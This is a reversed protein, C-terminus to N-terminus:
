IASSPSSQSSAAIPTQLPCPRTAPIPKSAIAHNPIPRMAAPAALALVPAAGVAEAQAEHEDGATGAEDARVEDAGQELPAVVDADEVVEGGPAARVERAEVDLDDLSLESAVLSHVVGDPTGLDDEM